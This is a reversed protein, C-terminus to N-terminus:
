RAVEMDTDALKPVEFGRRKREKATRKRLDNAAKSPDRYITALRNYLRRDMAFETM